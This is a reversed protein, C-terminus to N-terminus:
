RIGSHESMGTQLSELLLLHRDFDGETGTAARQMAEIMRYQPQEGTEVQLIERLYERTAPSAITAIDRGLLRAGAQEYDFEGHLLDAHEAHLRQQNGADLYVRMIFALDSADKGNVQGRDPWAALKLLALGALSAFSVDLVPNDHLRVTCAARLADQFGIVNM